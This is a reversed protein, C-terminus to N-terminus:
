DTLKIGPAPRAQDGRTYDCVGEPFVAGLLARYSNMDVPEYVGRALADDISQLACQFMDGALPVGAVNRPSQYAPFRALCPGTADAGSWPGDWVQPGAAILSGDGEWCADRADAPRTGTTLWEDIVALAESVPFYPRDSMWILLNDDHGRATRIRLRTSLSAFSHHMDLEPDLYHRLDIVPVTALGLFVHGSRYAAEMAPRHGRNRPAVRIDQVAGREFAELPTPGGPPKNMNHDDWLSLRSLDSDGSRLWLRAQEMDKPAKWGGINANLHLFEAPSLEGSRLAQLGYQVGTNDYTRYAHGDEDVGYINALDHWHTFRAIRALEPSYRHAHHFYHPNLVLPTLGRWSVSCETGGPPLRPWRLSLLRAWDDYKKYPNRARSSAALGMVLTRNEQVRWRPNDAATVDFYYELLECDLAWITQTIMDPYSYLTILADLLGPANQAIHLQQVAGGSGGLGVTYRPEGYRAVFQAKVMAATRAALRLNYHTGTVNGSSGIVAYGRALQDLLRDTLTRVPLRGQRKGIGVGGRFHYILRGNWYRTSHHELPEAPDALMAIGYIFRNITGREVRIVFPIRRGDHLVHDSDDPVPAGAPLLRLRESDRSKYFYELRTPALCDRSHGLVRGTPRGGADEAFVPTGVGDRNDVLPQGLDSDMTGCAFPYQLPWSDDIPGTEGPEVPFRSPDFGIRSLHPGTYAPRPAGPDYGPPLREVVAYPPEPVLDRGLWNVLRECGAAAALMLILGGAIYARWSTLSRRNLAMSENYKSAPGKLVSEGFFTM